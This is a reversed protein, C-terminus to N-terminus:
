TTSRSRLHSIAPALHEPDKAFVFRTAHDVSARNVFEAFGDSQWHALLAETATTEDLFCCVLFTDPSLPIVLRADRTAIGIQGPGWYRDDAMLVVASDGCFMLPAHDRRVVFKRMMAIFAVPRTLAIGVALGRPSVDAGTPIEGARLQVLYRLRTVEAELTDTRVGALAARQAFRVPDALETALKQAVSKANASTQARRHPSNAYVLALYRALARNEEVPLSVEGTADGRRRRLVGAVPGEISRASYTELSRDVGTPRRITNLGREVGADRLSVETISHTEVDLQHTHIGDASFGHLFTVSLYHDHARPM